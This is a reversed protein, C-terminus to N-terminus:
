TVFKYVKFIELLINFISTKLQSQPWEHLLHLLCLVVCAYLLNVYLYIVEYKGEEFMTSQWTLTFTTLM